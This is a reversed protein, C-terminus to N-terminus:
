TQSPLVVVEGGQGTFRPETTRGGRKPLASRRQGGRSKKTRSETLQDVSSSIHTEAGNGRDTTPLCVKEGEVLANLDRENIAPSRGLKVKSLKGAAVMREISRPTIGLDGTPDLREAAQQYSLLTM